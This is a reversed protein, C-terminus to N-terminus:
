DSEAVLRPPRLTGDGIVYALWWPLWSATELLRGALAIAISEAATLGASSMVVMFVAEFVGLGSISLPIRSILFVLPVAGAVYLLSVEIELARAILWLVLIPSLQQVFTLGFFAALSRKEHRYALYALHSQRLWRMIRVESLPRLLRGHLFDFATRSFSTAFALTAVLLVLSGLWWLPRFHVDLGGALFLLSLGLLGLWLATIFGVVREIFISAVVENTDLGSRSTSFARIADSGVTIPLFIGWVMSACYIGLGRFFPLHQGRSRLLLGWKYTMLGRDLTNIALILLMYAPDIRMLLQGVESLGGLRWVIVGVLIVTIALKLLLKM